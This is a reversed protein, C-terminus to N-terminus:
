QLFGTPEVEETGVVEVSRKLKAVYAGIDHDALGILDQATGVGLGSLVRAYLLTRSLTVSWWSAAPISSGDQDLFMQTGDHKYNIFAPPSKTVLDNHNVWRLHPVSLDDVFAQDGVRPSGFTVLEHTAPLQPDHQLLAATITAMAGGLSHGTLFVTRVTNSDSLLDSRIQPWLKQAEGFFGKHVKGAIATSGEEGDRRSDRRSSLPKQPFCLAYEGNAQSDAKEPTGNSKGQTGRFAIITDHPSDFRYAQANDQEYFKVRSFGLEAAKTGVEAIDNSYSLQSLEAMLLSRRGDDLDHIRQALLPQPSTQVPVAWDSAGVASYQGRPPSPCPRYQQSLVVTFFAVVGLAVTIVSVMCLRACCSKRPSSRRFRNDEDAEDAEDVFSSEPYRQHHLDAFSRSRAELNTSFQPRFALRLSSTNDAFQLMFLLLSINVKLFAIM